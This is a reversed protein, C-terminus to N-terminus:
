KPQSVPPIESTPSSSINETSAVISSSTESIDVSSPTEVEPQSAESIETAQSFMASSCVNQLVQIPFTNM